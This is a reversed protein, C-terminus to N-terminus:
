ELGHGKLPLLDLDVLLLRLLLNPVEDRESLLLLLSEVEFCGLYPFSLYNLDYEFLIIGQLTM